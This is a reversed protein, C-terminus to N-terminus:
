LINKYYFQVQEEAFIENAGSAQHGGAGYQYENGLDVFGGSNRRNRGFVTPSEDSLGFSDLDRRRSNAVNGNRTPDMGLSGIQLYQDTSLRYISV